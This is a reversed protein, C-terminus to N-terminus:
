SQQESARRRRDERRHEVRLQYLPTNQCGMLVYKSFYHVQLEYQAKDNSTNEYSSALKELNLLKTLTYTRLIFVAVKILSIAAQM